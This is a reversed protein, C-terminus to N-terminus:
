GREWVRTWFEKSNLPYEWKAVEYDDFSWVIVKVFGGRERLKKIINMSVKM